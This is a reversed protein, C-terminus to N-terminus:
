GYRLMSLGVIEELSYHQLVSKVDAVRSPNRKHYFTVLSSENHAFEAHRMEGRYPPLAPPIEAESEAEQMAQEAARIKAQQEAFLERAGKRPPPAHEQQRKERMVEELAEDMEDDEM